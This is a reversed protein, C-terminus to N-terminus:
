GPRRQDIGDVVRSRLQAQLAGTGSHQLFVVRASQHVGAGVFGGDSSGVVMFRDILHANM